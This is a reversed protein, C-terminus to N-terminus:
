VSSRKSPFWGGTPLVQHCSSCRADASVAVPRARAAHPFALSRVMFHDAPNEYEELPSGIKAFHDECLETPGMYMIKGDKLLM